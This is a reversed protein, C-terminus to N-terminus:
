SQQFHFGQALIIFLLSSCADITVSVLARSSPWPEIVYAIEELTSCLMLKTLNELGNSYIDNYKPIHRLTTHYFNLSVESFLVTEM